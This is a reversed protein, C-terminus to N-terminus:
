RIRKWSYYGGIFIVIIIGLFILSVWSDSTFLSIVGLGLMWLITWFYNHYM